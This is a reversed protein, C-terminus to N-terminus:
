KQILMKMAEVPTVLLLKVREVFETKLIIYFSTLYISSNAKICDSGNIDSFM